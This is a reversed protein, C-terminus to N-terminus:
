KKQEIMNSIDYYSKLQIDISKSIKEIKVRINNIYNQYDSEKILNCYQNDLEQNTLKNDISISFISKYIENDRTKLENLESNLKLIYENLYNYNLEINQIHKKLKIENPTDYYYQQIIIFVYSLVFIMVINISLLIIKRFFSLKIKEYKLSINNFHYKDKYM